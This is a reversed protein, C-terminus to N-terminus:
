LPAFLEQNLIDCKKKFKTLFRVFSWLCDNGNQHLQTARYLSKYCHPCRKHLDTFFSYFIDFLGRRGKERQISLDLYNTHIISTRVYIKDVKFRAQLIDLINEDTVINQQSLDDMSAPDRPGDYERRLGKM